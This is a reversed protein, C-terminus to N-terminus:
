MSMVQQTQSKCKMKEAQNQRVYKEKERASVPQDMPVGNPIRNWVLCTCRAAVLLCFACWEAGHTGEERGKLHFIELINVIYETNAVHFPKDSTICANLVLSLNDAVQFKHSVFSYLMRYETGIAHHELESPLDFIFLSLQLVEAIVDGETPCLLGLTQMLKVLNARIQCSVLFCSSRREIKKILVAENLALVAGEHQGRTLQVKILFLFNFKKLVNEMVNVKSYLQM